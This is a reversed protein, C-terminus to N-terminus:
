MSRRQFANVRKRLSPLTQREFLAASLDSRQTGRPRLDHSNEPESRLPWRAAIAEQMPIPAGIQV